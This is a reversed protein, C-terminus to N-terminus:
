FCKARGNGRSRVSAEDTRGGETRGDARGTLDTPRGPARSGRSPRPPLPITLSRDARLVCVIRKLEEGAARDGRRRRPEPHPSSPQPPFTPPSSTPVGVGASPLPPPPLPPPPTRPDRCTRDAALGHPHDACPWAGESTEQASSPSTGDHPAPPGHGPRTPATRSAPSTGAAACAWCGPPAPPPAGRGGPTGRPPGCGLERCAVRAPRPGWGRDCVPGWTGNHRVELRGACRGPGPGRLRLSFREHCHVWADQRHTCNNHAWPPHPCRAVRAEYGRCGVRALWVPGAGGASGDCRGRAWSPRGCGLERCLVRGDRLDWGDSCVTGWQGLHKVEVRGSCPGPGAALRWVVEEEPEECVAGADERHECNFAEMADCQALEGEGGECQVNQLWIPQREPASPPYVSAAPTDRAPGCGLERCLVAVDQLDWGDDCVTGWQGERSVEVRGACRHPGNVLRVKVPLPTEECVAGADQVHECNFAEMADCQALEGEGGECQVNQLWIPQREPASPPYVSAALADRAQGCGLERCLVAVDRLDWGDDCVTGWQGEQFVEVRGACRHPGNALRVQPSTPPTPTGTLGLGMWAALLLPFLPAM